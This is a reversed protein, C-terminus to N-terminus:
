ADVNKQIQQINEKNIKRRMIIVDICIIFTLVLLIGSLILILWNGSHLNEMLMQGLGAISTIMMFVMPIFVFMTSKKKYVRVIYVVLLALAALLQNTAGFLPWVAKWVPIFTDPNAPNPMKVFVMAVPLVLVLLTYICDMVLGKKQMLEESIYRALRTCTDLTTLLFTSIALLAFSSGMAVPIGLKSAFVGFGNAFIANPTNFMDAKDKALIMIACLSILALVAEVVMAGYGIRKMDRPNEAQKSTTGSSVLSHFGSIAGCAITIFLVPFLYGQGEAYWGKWGVFQIQASGTFCSIIIGIFSLVICVFLLYSSLYDRPQLLFWVPLMSAIFCYALIILSVTIKANDLMIFNMTSLYQTVFITVFVLPVFICTGTVFSIKKTKTLIGFCMAFIIYFCSAYAIGSGEQLTAAKKVEDAIKSVDPVFTSATLDCFVIIIYVLAIWVFGLYLKYSLPNLYKKCISSISDGGNRVSVVLAAFDHMGGIFICGIIIWLLAPIWGFLLAATIPGVIPGAGAISSFHHGFLVWIKTPVYDKGDQKTESPMKASYDIEFQKELYKGYLKYGLCLLIIGAIFITLLIM